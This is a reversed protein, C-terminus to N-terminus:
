KLYAFFDNMEFYSKELFALSIKISFNSRIRVNSNPIIKFVYLGM